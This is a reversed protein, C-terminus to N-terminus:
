DGKHAGIRPMSNAHARCKPRSTPLIHDLGLPFHSDLGDVLVLATASLVPSACVYTALTANRGVGWGPLHLLELCLTHLLSAACLSLNWARLKIWKQEHRRWKTKCTCEHASANFAVRCMAM